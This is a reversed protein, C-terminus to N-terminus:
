GSYAVGVWAFAAVFAFLMWQFMKFIANQIGSTAAIVIQVVAFFGYNISIFKVLWSNDAKSIYGIGTLLLFITSLVLYVSIYHFVCHNVKKPVDDFSAQLMPKLYQKSGVAFHGLTIFGAGVGAIFIPWNM